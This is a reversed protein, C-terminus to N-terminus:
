KVEDPYHQNCPLSYQRHFLLATKTAVSHYQIIGQSISISYISYIEQKPLTKRSFFNCQSM